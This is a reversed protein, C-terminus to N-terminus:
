RRGGRPSRASPVAPPLWPADSCRRFGPEAASSPASAPRSPTLSPHSGCHWGGAPRGLRLLAQGLPGLWRLVARGGRVFARGTASWAAEYRDHAHGIGRGVGSLAVWGVALLWVVPAALRSVIRRCTM